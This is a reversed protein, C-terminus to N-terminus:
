GRRQRLRQLRKVLAPAARLAAPSDALRNLALYYRIESLGAFEERIAVLKAGHRRWWRREFAILREELDTLLPEPRPCFRHDTQDPCSEPLTDRCDACADVHVHRDDRTAVTLLGGCACGADVATHGALRMHVALCRQGDVLQEDTGGSLAATVAQARLDALLTGATAERAADLGNHWTVQKTPLYTVVWCLGGVTGTEIRDYAWRGDTSVARCVGATPSEGPRSVPAPFTGSTVKKVPTKSAPPGVPEMPGPQGPEQVYFLM